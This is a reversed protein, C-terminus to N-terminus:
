RNITFTDLTKGSMSRFVGKVEDQNSYLFLAGFNKDLCRRSGGVRKKCKYLPAGGAGNVVFTSGGRVIREYTHDHGSLVLDVGMSGYDWQFLKTSGHKSSSFPPHHLVVVKFDAESNLLEQRLWAKQKRRAPTSKLGMTSDLIFFDIGSEAKYVYNRTAYTTGFYRDFYKIGFEYDHNGVTPVVKQPYYNGVLRQYSLKKKYRNDGLTLVFDPDFGAVLNAVARQKRSAVGFDGVVAIVEEVPTSSSNPIEQSPEVPASSCSSFGLTMTLVAAVVAVPHFKRM